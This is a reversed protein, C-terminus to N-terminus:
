TRKKITFGAAMNHGGGSEILNLDLSKKILKGMNFNETSRASGKYM